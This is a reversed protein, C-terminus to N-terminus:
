DNKNLNLKEIEKRLQKKGRNILTAISGMPKQLIDSIETYDKNELFKLILIERYKQDIKQLAQNVKKREEERELNKV